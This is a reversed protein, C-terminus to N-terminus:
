APRRASQLRRRLRRSAVRLLEPTARLYVETGLINDHGMYASLWPLREHLDVGARYWRTLRVVAFTHRLDYPRAGLRGRPPKLGVARFLRRFTNGGVTLATGDDRVFVTADPGGPALACRAKMYIRLERTLSAHVPLWRSRGKSTTVFLVGRRLDVDRLRLRRAEGVRMGTCYLVLILTRYMRKRFTSSARLHATRRVLRRVDAVSLVHPLFPRLGRVALDRSPVFAKPDRRRRYLCFQRVVCLERRVTSAKRTDNRALWRPVFEAFRPAAGCRQLGEVVFRELTRLTKEASGYTNGRARKFALFSAIDGALPSSIQRSM